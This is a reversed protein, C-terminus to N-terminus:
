GTVESMLPAVNAKIDLPQAHFAAAAHQAATRDDASLQTALAETRGKSEADGTASAIAYWKYADLLSQPVGLGREYLVALNFQSDSLGLAAAKSFWRAAEALNKAIGTGSAYAVALNHMAKRNGAQAALMYWHVAKASDQAVGRGRDFMTGLRYQAVAQGQDAARALWKAADVENVTVGDGDLYKLGVVLEARANGSNAMATLKDLPSLVATTRLAPSVSAAHAPPVITAAPPSHPAAAPLSMPTPTAAHVVQSPNAPTIGTAAPATGAPTAHVVVTSIEPPASATTTHPVSILHPVSPAPASSAARGFLATVSRPSRSNLNKSLIAGAGVAAFVLLVIIAIWLTTNKNDPKSEAAISGSVTGWAFGGARVGRETEAQASAARASQRAASLFTASNALSEMAALNMPENAIDPNGVVATAPATEHSPPLPL